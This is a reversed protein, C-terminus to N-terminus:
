HGCYQAYTDSCFCQRDTMFVPIQCCGQISVQGKHSIKVHTFHPESIEVSDGIIVGKGPALNYLNVALCKGKRDTLCFTSDHFYFITNRVFMALM